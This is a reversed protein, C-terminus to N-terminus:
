SLRDTGDELTLFELFLAEEQAKQGKFIPGSLIDQFTPVSNSSWVAYYGLLVCIEDVNSRFGSVV